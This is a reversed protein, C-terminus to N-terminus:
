HVANRKLPSLTSCQPFILLLQIYSLPRPQITVTISLVVVSIYIGSVSSSDLLGVLDDLLIERLRAWASFTPSLVAQCDHGHWGQVNALLSNIRAGCSKSKRLYLTLVPSLRQQRPASMLGIVHASVDGQWGPKLRLWVHAATSASGSQLPTHEDIVKAPPVNGHM